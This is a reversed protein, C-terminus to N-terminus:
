RTFPSKAYIETGRGHLLKEKAFSFAAEVQPKAEEPYMEYIKDLLGNEEIVELNSTFSINGLFQLLTWWMVIIPNWDARKNIEQLDIRELNFFKEKLDAPMKLKSPDILWRKNEYDYLPLFLRDKEEAEKLTMNNFRAVEEPTFGWGTAFEKLTRRFIVRGERDRINKNFYTSPRIVPYEGTIRQYLIDICDVDKILQTLVAYVQVEAETFTETDKLIDDLNSNLLKEDLSNVNPNFEGTLVADQHHLVAMGIVKAFRPTSTLSKVKGKKMLLEFGAESHNKVALPELLEAYKGKFYKRRSEQNNYDDGYTNNWTAYEFRGIDHLRATVELVKQFDVKMGIREAVNLIDDVVRETHIIKARILDRRKAVLVDIDRANSSIKGKAMLEKRMGETVGSITGQLEPHKKLSIIADRCFRVYEYFELQITVTDM